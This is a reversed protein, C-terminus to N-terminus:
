EPTDMVELGMASLRDRITDAEAFDKDARAEDRRQVLEQMEATPEWTSVALRDLDLALVRDWGAILERKARPSLEASGVTQDLVVLARPMDLDETVAERFRADIAKTADADGRPAA